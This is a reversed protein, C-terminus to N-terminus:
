KSHFYMRERPISIESIKVLAIKFCPDGRTVNGGSLESKGWCGKAPHVCMIGCM